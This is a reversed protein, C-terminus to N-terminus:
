HHPIHKFIIHSLQLPSYIASLVFRKRKRSPQPAHSLIGRAMPLAAERYQLQVAARRKLPGPSTDREEGLPADVQEQACVIGCLVQKAAVLRRILRPVVCHLGLPCQSAPIRVPLLVVVVACRGGGLRKGWFTHMTMLPHSKVLVGLSAIVSVTTKSCM